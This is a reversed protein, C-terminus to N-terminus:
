VQVLISLTLQLFYISIEAFLNHPAQKSMIAKRVVFNPHISKKLKATLQKMSASTLILIRQFLELHFSPFFNM